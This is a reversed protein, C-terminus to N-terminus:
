RRRHDWTAGPFKAMVETVGQPARMYFVHGEVDEWVCYLPNTGRGGGWYAGGKDYDGDYMRVLQIHLPESLDFQNPPDSQRGMPAGFKSGVEREFPPRPAKPKKATDRSRAM